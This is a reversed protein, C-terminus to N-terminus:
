RVFGCILNKGTLLATYTHKNHGTRQLLKKQFFRQEFKVARVLSYMVLIAYCDYVRRHMRRSPNM